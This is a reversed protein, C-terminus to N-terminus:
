VGGIDGEVKFVDDVKVYGSFTHGALKCTCWLSGDEHVTGVRLDSILPLVRLRVTDGQSFRGKRRRKM